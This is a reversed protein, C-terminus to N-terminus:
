VLPPPLPPASPTTITCPPPPPPQQPAPPYYYYWPYTPCIPHPYPYQQQSQPPPTLLKYMTEFHRDISDNINANRNVDNHLNTQSNHRNISEAFDSINQKLHTIYNEETPFEMLPRLPPKPLNELLKQLAIMLPQITHPDLKKIVDEDLPTLAAPIQVNTMTKLTAADMNTLPPIDALMNDGMTKFNLVSTMKKIRFFHLDM